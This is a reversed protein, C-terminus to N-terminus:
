TRRVCMRREERGGGTLAGGRAVAATPGEPQVAKVWASGGALADARGSGRLGLPAACRVAQAPSRVSGAGAHDQAAAREGGHDSAAGGHGLVPAEAAAAGVVPVTRARASANLRVLAIRRRRLAAAHPHRKTPQPQCAPPSLTGTYELKPASATPLSPSGAHHEQASAGPACPCAVRARAEAGGAGRWLKCGRVTHCSAHRVLCSADQMCRTATIPHM